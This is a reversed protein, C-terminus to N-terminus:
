TKRRAMIERVKARLDEHMKQTRKAVQEQIYAMFKSPDDMGINSGVLRGKLIQIEREADDIVLIVEKVEIETFNLDKLADRIEAKISNREEMIKEYVEGSGPEKPKLFNLIGLNKLFDMLGM